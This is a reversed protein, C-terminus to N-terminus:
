VRNAAAAQSKKNDEEIKVYTYLLVGLLTLGVGIIQKNDVNSDFFLYGGVFVIVTKLYGIVNVSFTIIISALFLRQTHTLFTNAVVTTTILLM